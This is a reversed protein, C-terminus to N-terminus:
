AVLQEQQDLVPQQSHAKLSEYHLVAGTVMAMAATEVRLRNPGLGVPKAGAALMDKMEQETFDGEPGVLLMCPKNAGSEGVSQLSNANAALVQQLPPAGQTAVFAPAGSQMLPLLSELLCPPRIILAHARCGTLLTLM